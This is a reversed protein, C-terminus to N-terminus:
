EFFEHTGVFHRAQARHGAGVALLLCDARACEVEPHELLYELLRRRAERKAAPLLRAAEDRAAAGRPAEYAVVKVVVRTDQDDLVLDLPGREPRVKYGQAAFLERALRAGFEETDGERAEVRAAPRREGREYAAREEEDWDSCFVEEVDM